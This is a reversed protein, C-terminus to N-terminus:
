KSRAIIGLSKLNSLYYDKLIMMHKRNSKTKTRIYLHSIYEAVAPLALHINQTTKTDDIYIRRWISSYGFLKRRWSRCVSLCIVATEQDAAFLDTIRCVIEYPLQSIFDIRKQLQAELIDLQRQIILHYASSLVSLGRELVYIAEQQNGQCSYLKAAHQYNTHDYPNRTITLVTEKIEQTLTKYTTEKLSEITTTTLSISTENHIIM